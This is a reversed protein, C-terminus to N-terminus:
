HTIPADGVPEGGDSGTKGDPAGVTKGKPETETSADGAATSGENVPAVATPGDAASADATTGDEGEVKDVPPDSAPGEAAAQQEALLELLRAKAAPRGKVKPGDAGLQYWGGGTKMEDLMAEVKADIGDTGPSGGQQPNGTATSAGSEQVEADPKAEIYRHEILVGLNQWESADPIEQGPEWDQGNGRFYQKAFYRM